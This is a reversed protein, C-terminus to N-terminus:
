SCDRHPIARYNSINVFQFSLQWICLKVVLVSHQLELPQQSLVYDRLVQKLASILYTKGIGATGSVIMGLPESDDDAM